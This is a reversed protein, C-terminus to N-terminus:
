ETVGEIRIINNKQEPRDAMHMVEYSDLNWHSLNNFAIEADASEYDRFLIVNLVEGEKSEILAYLPGTIVQCKSKELLENTKQQFVPQGHPYNQCLNTTENMVDNVFKVLDHDKKFRQFIEEAKSQNILEKNM